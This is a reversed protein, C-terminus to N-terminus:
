RLDRPNKWDKSLLVTINLCQMQDETIIDITKVGVAIHDKSNPSLLETTGSPGRRILAACSPVLCFNGSTTEIRYYLGM